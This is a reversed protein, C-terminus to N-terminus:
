PTDDETYDGPLLEACAVCELKGRQLVSFLFGDCKPCVRTLDGRHPAFHFLARYTTCKPCELWLTGVPAVAVWEHKCATCYARDAVHPSKAARKSDLSVVKDNM